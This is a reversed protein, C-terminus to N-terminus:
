LASTGKCDTSCGSNIISKYIHLFPKITIQLLGLNSLSLRLDSFNNTQWLSSTIFGSFSIHALFRLGVEGEKGIQPLGAKVMRVEKSVQM